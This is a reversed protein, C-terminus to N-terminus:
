PNPTKRPTPAAPVPTQTPVPEPNDLARAWRDVSLFVEGNEKTLFGRVIFAGNPASIAIRKSLGIAGTADVLEERTGKLQLTGSVTAAANLPLRLVGQVPTPLAFHLSAEGSPHYKSDLLRVHAVYDGPAISQRGSLVDWIHTVLITKGPPFTYSRLVQAAAHTKSWVWLEKGHSSVAVDYLDTTPFSAVVPKKAANTVTIVFGVPDLLDLSTRKVDVHMSLPNGAGLLGIFFACALLQPRM